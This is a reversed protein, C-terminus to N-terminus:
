DLPTLCVFSVEQDSDGAAAPPGALVVTRGSRAIVSSAVVERGDHLEWVVIRAARGGVAHGELRLEIRHGDDDLLAAGGSLPVITSGLSTVDDLSFVERLQSILAEQSGGAVDADGPLAFSRPRLITTTTVEQRTSFARGRFLQVLLRDPGPPVARRGPPATLPDQPLVRGTPPMTGAWVALAATACFLLGARLVFRRM